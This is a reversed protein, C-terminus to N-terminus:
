IGATKRIYERAKLAYEFPNAKAPDQEAEVVMWGEYNNRDLIEFIPGFDITGDGPVTFTGALVSDFFSLNEARVRRLTEERVDKLHIHKVRPMYKELTEVPNEGCYCFHGSDYLLNVLEPDTRDLLETVEEASQVVTGMHHHFTLIIDKEQAIKGLNELGKALRDWEQNNLVYKNEFIPVDLGQLGYSQESVGVAGAGAAKLFDTFQDFEQAVEEYPKEVLYSSFWSNCLRIGRLDLKQKLEVPDTPFKSGRETGEFGALAIESICQEFTNGAGLAPRDDNSWAIPAIALKIKSKNMM